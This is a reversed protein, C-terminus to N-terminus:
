RLRADRRSWLALGAGGGATRHHDVRDDILSSYHVGVRRLRREVEEDSALRDLAFALWTQEIVNRSARM